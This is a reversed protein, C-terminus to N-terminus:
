SQWVSHKSIFTTLYCITSVNDGNYKSKELNTVVLNHYSVIKGWVMVKSLTGSSIKGELILLFEMAELKVADRVSPPVM